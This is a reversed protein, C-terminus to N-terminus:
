ETIGSGTLHFMNRPEISTLEAFVQYNTAGNFASVFVEKCKVNMTLSGSSGAVTVYHKNAIVDDTAAITQEGSAGPTTFADITSGSQFHVYLDTDASAGVNVITFSKTVRPFEVSQVKNDAIASGTIWPQGSAQYAPTHWLGPPGYNFTAM